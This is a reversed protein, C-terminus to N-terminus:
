KEYQKVILTAIDDILSQVESSEITNTAWKTARLGKNFISKAVAFPSIGKSEAFQRLSQGGITSSNIPPMKTKYSFPSNSASPYTSKAGKVGEDQYTGYEEWEIALVWVDGEKRIPLASISQQLFGSNDPANQQLLAILRSAVDEISDFTAAELDREIDRGLTELAELGKIAM